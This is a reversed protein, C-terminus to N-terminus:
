GTVSINGSTLAVGDAILHLHVVYPGPAKPLPIWVEVNGTDDETSAVLRYAAFNRLWNGFLRRRASRSYISWSLLVPQGRLGILHVNVSILQGLPDPRGGAPTTATRTEGLVGIVRRAAAYAPVPEGKRDSALMSAALVMEGKPAFQIFPACGQASCQKMVQDAVLFGVSQKM